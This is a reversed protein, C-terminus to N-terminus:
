HVIGVRRTKEQEGNVGFSLRLSALFFKLKAASHLRCGDGIGQKPSHSRRIAPRGGSRHSCAGLRRLRGRRSSLCPGALQSSPVAVPQPFPRAATSAGAPRVPRALVLGGLPCAAAARAFRPLLHTTAHLDQAHTKNSTVDFNCLFVFIRM